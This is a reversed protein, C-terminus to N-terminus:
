IHILSLRSLTYRTTLLPRDYSKGNYSLLVTEPALWRAFESLMATEAAMTTMLLQRIRLRGDKWDGAGIM